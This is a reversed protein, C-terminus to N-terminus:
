RNWVLRQVPQHRINKRNNKTTTIVGLDSFHKPATGPRFALNVMDVNQTYRTALMGTCRDITAWEMGDPVAFDEKTTGALATKMFDVWIPLAVRAGDGGNFITKKMDLGVWVGCVIRTSFGVYWADTHDDTTGTKGALPWNLVNSRAGTGRQAVGRLCQILQYNVMPDIAQDGDNSVNNELVNGHRDLIKKILFPQPTQKGGNAFTGYGRVVDKLTLDSAGLALSPYPLMNGTVGATKAFNIVNEIGVTNLMRVAPINRSDRIAEWIPIPGWFNKEYNNPEYSTTDFIFRTPIDEVISAPTKGAAFAAGYVFAKVVSGVQREAQISRNFNSRKFDYGGVMARIEGTQPEIALLAGEVDPEQYLELKTPIGDGGTAKVIFLPAAGRTIVTSVQNGAWAFAQDPVMLFKNGIRVEAVGAIRNQVVGQVVDGEVFFRNWGPLTVTDPNDVFQIYEKRFGRRKSVSRLGVQIANNAAIQWDADITTTIELGGELVKASGYKEYLYKRVEEVPYPAIAKEKANERILCIPQDMIAGANVSDLYGEAVMRKLVHNRRIRAADKAKPDPNYPNFRNPNQILGALMACEDIMLQSANKGFYFRAAAEIGYRGGGFYVANAYHEFIQKKSYTAELKRALVIENLKRSLHKQRKATIVRVLQMSLTSAGERRQGLSTLFTLGARLIGRISVGRHHIFDADETAIVANVFAKPIDEFSIVIRNEEAFIGIVRGNRDLVRTATKPVRTAFNTIFSDANSCLIPWSILLAIVGILILSLVGWLTYRLFFMGLFDKKRSNCMKAVM